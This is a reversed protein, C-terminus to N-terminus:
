GSPPMILGVEFPKKPNILVADDLGPGRWHHRVKGTLFIISSSRSNLRSCERRQRRLAFGREFDESAEEGDGRQKQQDGRQSVGLRDLLAVHDVGWSGCRRTM